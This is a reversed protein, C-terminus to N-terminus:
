LAVEATVEASGLAAELDLGFGSATWPVIEDREAPLAPPREGALAAHPALGHARDAGLALALAACAMFGVPGELTHSAVGVIGQSAAAAALRLCPELGGLTTPKLMIAAVGASRARSFDPAGAQMSEDLALPVGLPTEIPERSPEELWALALKRLPPLLRELDARGLSRNADATLSIASGYRERLTRLTLLGAESAPELKVKFARIGRGLAAEVAVLARAPDVPLWLSVARPSPPPIAPAEGHHALLAWAPRAARRALLDLLATELAARASPPAGAPLSWGAGPLTRLARVADELTDTSYGPLPAAEGLGFHGDGGDLVLLATRRESWRGAASAMPESLARRQEFLRARVIV